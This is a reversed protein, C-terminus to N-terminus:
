RTNKKADFKFRIWFTGKKKNLTMRKVFFIDTVSYTTMDTRYWVQVPRDRFVRSTIFSFTTREIVIHYWQEGTTMNHLAVFRQKNKPNRWICGLSQPEGSRPVQLCPLLGQSSLDDRSHAIRTEHRRVPVPSYNQWKFKQIKKMKTQKTHAYKKSYFCLFSHVWMELSTWSFFFFSQYAYKESLKCNRIGTNFFFDILM